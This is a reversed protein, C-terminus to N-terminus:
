SSFVEDSEENEEAEAELILQALDEDDLNQSSNDDDLIQFELILLSQRRFLPPVKQIEIHKIFLLHISVIRSAKMKTLKLWKENNKPKLILKSYRNVFRIETSTKNKLRNTVVIATM